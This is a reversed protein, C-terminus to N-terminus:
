LLVWWYLLWLVSIALAFWASIWLGCVVILSALCYLWCYCWSLLCFLLAWGVLFRALLWGGFVLWCAVVAFLWAVSFYLWGLCGRVGVRAFFDFCVRFAFM